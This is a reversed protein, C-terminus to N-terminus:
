NGGVDINRITITRADYELLGDQRMKNLERSLSTRQMGLMEALDKKSANLKITNNKQIHYEYKLFEIIRQRITKLSIVNIKDTLILTRDSIAEIMRVMFDVNNQSLELILEKYMHLVVTDSEAVVTMPYTNKSSFILSAGIINTAFLVHVTLLNGDEDIKQISIYGDLIVDIAHCVENQLHIIQGKNYRKIEYKYLSFLRSM